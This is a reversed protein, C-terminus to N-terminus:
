VLDQVTVYRVNTAVGPELSLIRYSELMGLPGTTVTLVAGKHPIETLSQQPDFALHFRKRTIKQVSCKYRKEGWALEGPFSPFVKEKSDM